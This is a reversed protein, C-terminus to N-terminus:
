EEFIRQKPSLFNMLKRQITNPHEGFQISLVGEIIMEKILVEEESRNKLKGALPIFVLNAALAGYFTTILAVAMGGGIQSPDNLNQLMGILGILTGIMGFAPAYEGYASFIEQGRKHREMLYSLETEMISRILEPETGDVVMEMGSRLFPDEIQSVEKDIALLGEKRAKKSLEVIQNILAVNDTKESFFAKRVVNIVGLVEKLQFSILTAATAGGFVVMMSPVHIFIAASGGMIITLVVLTVGSIIGIITALDM